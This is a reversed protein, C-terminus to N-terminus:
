RIYLLTIDLARGTFHGSNLIYETFQYCVVLIAFNSQEIKIDTARDSIVEAFFFKDSFTRSYKSYKGPFKNWQRRCVIQLVPIIVVIYAENYGDNNVM